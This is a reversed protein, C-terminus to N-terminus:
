PKILRCEFVQLENIIPKQAREKQEIKIIYEYVAEREDKTLKVESHYYLHNASAVLSM